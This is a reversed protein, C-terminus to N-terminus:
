INHSCDVVQTYGIFHWGLVNSPLFFLHELRIDASLPVPTVTIGLTHNTQKSGREEAGNLIGQVDISKAIIKLVIQGDGGKTPYYDGLVNTGGTFVVWSVKRRYCYKRYITSVGQQLVEQEYNISSVV